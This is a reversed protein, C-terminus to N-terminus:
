GISGKGQGASMVSGPGNNTIPKSSDTLVPMGKIFMKTENPIWGTVAICPMSVQPCTFPVPGVHMSTLINQKTIQHQPSGVLPAVPAVGGHPCQIQGQMTLIRSM